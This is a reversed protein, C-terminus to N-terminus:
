FKQKCLPVGAGVCHVGNCARFWWDTCGAMAFFVAVLQVMGYGVSIKWHAVGGENALVLYLYRLHPETLSQRDRIREAMTMLEDAYFPFLFGALLVFETLDASFALM